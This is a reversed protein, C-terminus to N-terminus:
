SMRRKKQVFSIIKQISDLNEPTIEQDEVNIEFTKEIFGVIELIGTSDVIGEELFSTTGTISGPDSSFLFNDAIFENVAKGIRDLDDM